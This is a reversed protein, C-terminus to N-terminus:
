ILGTLSPQTPNRTAQKMSYMNIDAQRLLPQAARADLPWVAIGVSVGIRIMIGDVSIENSVSTIITEAVQLAQERHPAQELLILFEDGGVRAVMDAQRVAHQLRKAVIKLVEDGMAHGHLDNVAKFGDLDLALVSFAQSPAQEPPQSCLALLRKEFTVRNFVGTLADHRALWQNRQEANRRATADSLSVIIGQSPMVPDAACVQLDLWVQHGDPRKFRATISFMSDREIQARAKALLRLSHQPLLGFGSRLDELSPSAKLGLLLTAPRSVRLIGQANIWIIATQESNFMRQQQDELARIRVSNRLGEDLVRGYKYLMFVAFVFLSGSLVPTYSPNGQLDHVPITALAVIPPICFGLYAMPYAALTGLAVFATGAILSSVLMQGNPPMDQGFYVWSSWLIGVLWSLAIVRTRFQGLQEATAVQPSFVMLYGVRSLACALFGGTFLANTMTSLDSESIAVWNLAAVLLILVANRPAASTLIAARAREVELEIRFGSVETVQTLM